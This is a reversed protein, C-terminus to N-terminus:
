DQLRKKITDRAAKAVTPLILPEFPALYRLRMAGQLVRRDGAKMYGDLFAATIRRAAAANLSLKNSYYIFEAIDWSKDGGEAAQELDVLFLKDNQVIANSPKTDGLTYGHSHAIAIAEGYRSLPSEDQLKGAQIRSVVKGVDLGEVFKTVLIRDALMVCIIEPTNLGIRRLDRIAHYERRLRSLPALDFTKGPLAWLRLFAWKVAWIDRFRKVAVSVTKGGDELLYTKSTYYVEDPRKETVKVNKDLRLAESTVTIWDESEAALRGEEVRWLSKPRTIEDPVEQVDKSRSLKSAVEKRVVGLGVRGAYGHVAYQRVGRATYTLAITLKSIQGQRTVKNPIALYGDDYSVIGQRAFEKAISEFSSLAPRLNDGILQKSYTKSYSYLAPPYIAARKRLKEFLFYSLPIKLESSFEGAGNAIEQLTEIFVRRKFLFEVHEFFDAGQLPEYVNLLRGVVFEGLSAKKADKELSQSDVLLASVDVDKSVYRYRVRPRFGHLVVLVDYDSDARAYGAVHSGYACVAAPKLEGIIGNVADTLKLREQNELRLVAAGSNNRRVSRSNM